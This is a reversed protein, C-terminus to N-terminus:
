QLQAGFKPLFDNTRFHKRAEDTFQATSQDSEPSYIADLSQDASQMIVKDAPTVVDKFISCMTHIARKGADGVGMVCRSAEDALRSPAKNLAYDHAFQAAPNSHVQGATQQVQAYARALTDANRDVIESTPLPAPPTQTPAPVQQAVESNGTVARVFAMAKERSDDSIGRSALAQPKPSDALTAAAAAGTGKTLFALDRVAQSNGGAAAIKMLELGLDKHLPLGLKGNNLGMALDKVAQMDGAEARAIMKDLAVNSSTGKVEMLIRIKELPTPPDVPVTDLPHSLPTYTKAEASPVTQTPAAPKQAVDAHAKGFTMEAFRHFPNKWSVKAMSATLKEKALHVVNQVTENSALLGFSAGLGGAILGKTATGKWFRSSGLEQGFAKIERKAADHWSTAPLRNETKQLKLDAHRERIYSVTQSTIAGVTLIGAGALLAPASTTACLAATCSKAALVAGAGGLFGPMGELVRTLLRPKPELSPDTLGGFKSPVLPIAGSAGVAAMAPQAQTSPFLKRLPNFMLADEKTKFEPLHNLM